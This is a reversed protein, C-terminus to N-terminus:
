KAKEVISVSVEELGVTGKLFDAVEDITTCKGLDENIVVNVTANVINEDNPVFTVMFSYENDYVYLYTTPTQLTSDIFSDSQTIISTAATTMGGKKANLLSPLVSSFRYKVMDKIEDSLAVDGVMSDFFIETLNNLTFVAKPEKYDKSGIDNIVNTIEESASYLSIYEKSESLTDVNDILSLGKDLLSTKKIETNSGVCATLGVAMVTIVTLAIIKKIKMITEGALYLNDDSDLFLKTFERDM